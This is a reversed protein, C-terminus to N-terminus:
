CTCEHDKHIEYNPQRTRRISHCGSAVWEVRSPRAPPLTAAPQRWCQSEQRGPPARWYPPRNRPEVGTGIDTSGIPSAFLCGFQHAEFAWGVLSERERNPRKADEEATTPIRSWPATAGNGVYGGLFGRKLLETDLRDTKARRHERSIAVISPHIVHADVGRAWGRCRMSSWTSKV